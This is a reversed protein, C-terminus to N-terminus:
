QISLKLEGESGSVFAKIELEEANQPITITLVGDANTTGVVEGNVRIEAGFVPSGDAGSVVVTVETGAQPLGELQVTLGTEGVDGEEDSGDGDASAQPEAVTFERELEGRRDGLRAELSLEEAYAPIEIDLLGEASTLGADREMKIRVEADPVPNGQEDLILLTVTTGAQIQGEMQLSLGDNETDTDASGDEGFRVELEAEADDKEAELHLKVTGAPIEVNLRGEADTDGLVGEAKLRVIVATVANGVEDTVALTSTTGPQPEGELQLTFEEGEGEKEQDKVEIYPQDPGTQGIEPQVLYDHDGPPGRRVATFDYVFNIPEVGGVTFGSHEGQTDRPEWEFRGSPLEVFVSCADGIGDADTDAQNDGDAGNAVFRCNDDSNLIGDGDFDGAPDLNEPVGGEPALEGRVGAADAPILRLKVYTTEEVDGEWIAQAATGQLRVLDVTTTQPVLLGVGPYWEGAAREIEFGEFTVLLRAFDGIANEEDSILLRFTGSVPEEPPVM